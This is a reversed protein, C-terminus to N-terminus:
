TIHARGGISAGCIVDFGSHPEWHLPLADAEPCLIYNYTYQLIRYITFSYLKYLSINCFIDEFEDHNEEKRSGTSNTSLGEM